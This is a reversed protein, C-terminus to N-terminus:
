VNINFTFRISNLNPITNQTITTTGGGGQAVQAPFMVNMIGDIQPVGLGSAIDYGAIASFSAGSNNSGLNTLDTPLHLTGDLVDYFMIAANAANAHKSYLYSQLNISTGISHVKTTLAPLNENFNKQAIHSFLGCLIPSALSTGGLQQKLIKSSATSTGDTYFVLVGTASDAISSVDPTCRKPNTNYTALAALNNQYAPRAYENAIAFGAGAGVGGTAPVVANAGVWVSNYPGKADGTQTADYYLSTGGVALVNPSTAPYTSYRHDGTAGLYCIKPNAFTDVDSSPFDVGMQAGWSMNVFDCGDNAAFNSDISAYKLTNIMNSMTSDYACIIRIKANPNMAYSWLDLLLEGLWGLKDQYPTAVGASAASYWSSSALINSSNSASNGIYTKLPNIVNTNIDSLAQEAAYAQGGSIVDNLYIMEIPKSTLNYVRCMADFCSQVYDVPWPYAITIAINVNKKGAVPLINVTAAGHAAKIDSPSYPGKNAVGPNARSLEILGASLDREYQEPDFVVCPPRAVSNLLLVELEEKSLQPVAELNEQPVSVESESM